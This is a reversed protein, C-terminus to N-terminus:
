FQFYIFARAEGSCTVIVVLMGAFVLSRFWWPMSEIIQQLSRVRMIWHSALIICTIGFTLLTYFFEIRVAPTGHNIALLSQIITFAQDFSNARFFVWAFSVAVFTILVFFIQVPLKSWLKSESMINKLFREVVLYLGHLGGWAM